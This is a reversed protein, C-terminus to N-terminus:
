PVRVKKEQSKISRWMKCSPTRNYHSVHKVRADYYAHEFGLRVIVNVIPSFTNGGGCVCVSIGGAIPQITGSINKSLSPLPM